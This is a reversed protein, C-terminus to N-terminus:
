LDGDHDLDAWWSSATDATVSGAAGAAATVDAFGGAGDGRLLHNAGACSVYLDVHGDNDYDGWACSRAGTLEGLGAAATSDIFRGADRQQLLVLRGAAAGGAVVVAADLRGDGTFDALTLEVHADGAGAAADIALGQALLKAPEATIQAGAPGPSRPVPVPQVLALPGLQGYHPLVVMECLASERLRLFQEQYRTRAEADGAQAALRM